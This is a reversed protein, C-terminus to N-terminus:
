NKLVEFSSDLLRLISKDYYFSPMSIYLFDASQAFRGIHFHGEIVIDIALNHLAIYDKYAAIRNDILANINYAKAIRKDQVKNHILKYLMGFTALSLANLVYSMPKSVLSTIYIEYKKDLFLDGHALLLHKEQFRALLPQKDRPITLINSFVASLNFDHNGEFYIIKTQKSLKNLSDILNANSEISQKLNGVLIHSIDGLLIIQSPLPNLSELADILTTDNDKIHSDAIFIVDDNLELVKM